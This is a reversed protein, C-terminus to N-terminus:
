DSGRMRIWVKEEKGRQREQVKGGSRKVKDQVLYVGGMRGDHVYLQKM